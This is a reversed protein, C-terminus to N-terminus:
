DEETEAHGCAHLGPEIISLRFITGGSEAQPPGVQDAQYAAHAARIIERHGEIFESQFTEETMGGDALVRLLRRAAQSQGESIRRSVERCGIRIVELDM